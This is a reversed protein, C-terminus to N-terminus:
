PTVEVTGHMGFFSHLFHTCTVRYTGPTRPTLTIQAIQHPALDVAGDPPPITGPPLTSAAFFAPASFDHSGASENVLRLQIAVGAKLHLQRPAFAFNSLHVTVVTIERQDAEAISPMSPLASIAVAAVYAMIRM